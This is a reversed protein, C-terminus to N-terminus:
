QANAANPAINELPKNHPATAAGNYLQEIETGPLKHDAAAIASDLIPWVLAPESISCVVTSVRGSQSIEVIYPVSADFKVLSPQLASYVASFDICGSDFSWQKRGATSDKIISGSGDPKLDLHWGKPESVSIGAVGVHSSPPAHRGCGVAGMISISSLLVIVERIM